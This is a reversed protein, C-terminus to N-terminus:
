NASDRSRFGLNLLFSLFFDTVLRMIMLNRPGDHTGNVPCCDTSHGASALWPGLGNWRSCSFWTFADRESVCSDRLPITAKCNQCSNCSKTNITVGLKAETGKASVIKRQEGGKSHLYM